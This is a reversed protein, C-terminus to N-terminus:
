GSFEDYSFVALFIKWLLAGPTPPNRGANFYTDSIDAQYYEKITHRKCDIYKRYSGYNGESGPPPPALPNVFGINKTISEILIIIM